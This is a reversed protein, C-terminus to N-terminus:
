VQWEASPWASAAHSQLRLWAGAQVRVLCVGDDVSPELLSLRALFIRSWGTLAVDTPTFPCSTKKAKLIRFTVKTLVSDAKAESCPWCQGEGISLGHTTGDARNRLKANVKVVGTLKARDTCMNM